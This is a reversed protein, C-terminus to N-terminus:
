YAQLSTTEQAKFDIFSSTYAECLISPDDIEFADVPKNISNESTTYFSLATHALLNFLSPRYIRNEEKIHLIYEFDSIPQNQTESSYELSASFHQDIEKFLTDLDWTRFDVSDVKTETTTRNYFQYRNYQYYQWYLNALYSHLISKTVNDASAIELKFDNVISLEADEELTKIFKSKYLLSKIVQTDDGEKKAKTSIIEVLKLASKTQNEFEYDDVQKWLQDFSNNEQANGFQSFM